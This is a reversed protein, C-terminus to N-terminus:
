RSRRRHLRQPVHHGGYIVPPTSSTVTVVIVVQKEDFIQQEFIIESAGPYCDSILALVKEREEETLRRTHM